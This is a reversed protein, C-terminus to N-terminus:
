MNAKRKLKSRNTNLFNMKHFLRSRQGASKALFSYFSLSIKDHFSSFLWHKIRTHTVNDQTFKFFKLMMDKCTFILLLLYFYWQCIKNVVNCHDTALLITNVLTSHESSQLTNGSLVYNGPRCLLRHQLDRPDACLQFYQSYPCIMIM